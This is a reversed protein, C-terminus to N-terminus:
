AFFVHFFREVAGLGKCDSNFLHRGFTLSLGLGLRFLGRVKTLTSSKTFCRLFVVKKTKIRNREEM